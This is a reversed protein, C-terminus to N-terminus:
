GVFTPARLGPNVDSAVWRGTAALTFLPGAGTAVYLPSGAVPSTAMAVAHGRFLGPETFAPGAMSSGDLRVMMVQWTDTAVPTLVAITGPTRWGLDRVRLATPGLGVRRAPTLGRVTGHRDRRVRSIRLEDGDPTRVVTLLRTGDRSVVLGRVDAGTVGPATLARAKGKRVVVVEAGASTRDALWLQGYVDYSPRLVDRGQYVTTVDDPGSPGGTPGYRPGTLVRSGDETVGAINDAPLDVAITRLGLDLAGLPGSVRHEAGDDWAVVRGARLGFLAPSAWAVSPDYDSFADFSLASHEGPLDLPSGGVTVRMREVGPVQQLTRGLQALALNRTTADLGLVEDSLSVEATGQPSIPVSLDDLRTRAPLYTREVGRLDAEPGKLLGTVLQTPAQAGRPVYVPEPVLVQGSQDFYYLFYQAFRDEFDPRPLVLADPPHSIRWEGSERVLKLRWHLGAGHTPDGLWKGRGDLRTIGGLGLRVGGDTIGLERTDYVVTSKEPVWSRSSAETLYQRAISTTLPSATMATLFDEVIQVRTAGPKPGAPTFELVGSDTVQEQESSSHVPGTTPLRACGLPLVLVVLLALLVRLRGTM